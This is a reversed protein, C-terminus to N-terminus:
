TRTAAPTCRRRRSRTCRRCPGRATDLEAGSAELVRAWLRRAARLKAITPFQEATVALRLELLRAAADVGLGAATLARLYAVGASVVYGLEQADSGGAAHVPLGDVVVARVLPFDRAVRLALPVVSGVDPGSGTRARVGVPDLGLTGLLAAPGVRASGLELYAQAAAEAEAPSASADLVVPALDLLVGDLAKPLDAVATGAAGVALWISTAGNALDALVAERPDPDAHWTRM